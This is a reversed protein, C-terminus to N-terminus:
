CRKERFINLHDRLNFPTLKAGLGFNVDLVANAFQTVLILEEKHEVFEGYQCQITLALSGHLRDRGSEHLLVESLKRRLYLVQFIRSFIYGGAADM